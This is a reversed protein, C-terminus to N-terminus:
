QSYHEVNCKKADSM